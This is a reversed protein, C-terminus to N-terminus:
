ASGDNFEGTSLSYGIKDAYAQIEEMAWLPADEDYQLAVSGDDHLKAIGVQVREGAHEGNPLGTHMAPVEKLLVVEHDPMNVDLMGYQDFQASDDHLPASRRNILGKMYTSPGKHKGKRPDGKPRGSRKAM